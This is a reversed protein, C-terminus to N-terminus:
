QARTGPTAVARRRRRVYPLFYRPCLLIGEDTSRVLMRDGPNLNWKRTIYRPVTMSISGGERRLLVSLRVRLRPSKPRMTMACFTTCLRLRAPMLDDRASDNVRPALLANHTRSWANASCRM